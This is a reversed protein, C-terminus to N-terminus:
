DEACRLNDLKIMHVKGRRDRQSQFSAILSFPRNSRPLVINGGEHEDPLFDLQEPLLTWRFTSQLGASLALKQWRARLKDRHHRQLPKADSIFKWNKLELWIINQSKNHFSVTLFCLSNLQQVAKSPFGRAEYFAAVQQPTRASLRLSFAPNDVKWSTTAATAFRSVGGFLLLLTLFYLRLM